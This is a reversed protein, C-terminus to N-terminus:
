FHVVVVHLRGFLQGVSGWSWAVGKPSGAEAPPDEASSAVFKGPQKQFRAVCKECCFYVRKGQYDVFRDVRAPQDTMVPCMKNADAPLASDARVIPTFLVLIMWSLLLVRMLYQM